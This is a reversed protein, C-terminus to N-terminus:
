EAEVAERLHQVLHWRDAVQVADPAGQTVGSAYAEARDRAVVTVEPHAQLWAAVTEATRDELLDVPCHRDLDVVITGSTHGKRKAGDDLGIARPPPAEPAPLRRVRRLLTNRSGPMGQRALHRAGAAGGLALGTATQMTSLRTTARASCPAVQPVRETFTQRACHPTECWFRRVRLHLQVPTTAWPLDALTRRYNSHMPTSPQTCTPCHAQSTTVAVDLTMGRETMAMTEISLPAQPPLLATCLATCTM